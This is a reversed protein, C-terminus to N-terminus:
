EDEEFTTYDIQLFRILIAILKWSIKIGHSKQNEKRIKKSNAKVKKWNIKSEKPYTKYTMGNFTLIKKGRHFSTHCIDCITICNRIKDAGKNKQFKIHHLTLDTNTEQCNENQCKFKDRQFVLCKIFYKNYVKDQMKPTLCKLTDQDWEDFFAEQEKIIRFRKYDM